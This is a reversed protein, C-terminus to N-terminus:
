LYLQKLQRSYLRIDHYAKWWTTQHLKDLMEDYQPLKQKVIEDLKSLDDFSVLLHQEVFEIMEDNFNFGAKYNCTDLILPICDNTIAEFFRRLSFCNTDYSPINLTFKAHQIHRMYEDYPILSTNYKFDVNQRWSRYRFFFQQKEVFTPEAFHEMAKIINLRDKVNSWSDTMAFAFKLTKNHFNASALGKHQCFVYWYQQSPSFEFKFKVPEADLKMPHEYIDNAVKHFYFHRIRINDIYHLKHQLPDECFNYVPKQHEAFWEALLYTIIYELANNVNKLHLTMVDDPQQKCTEYMHWFAEECEITANTNGNFLSLTAPNTTDLQSWILQKAQNFTLDGSMIDAVCFRTAHLKSIAEQKMNARQYSDVYMFDVKDHLLELMAISRWQLSNFFNFNGSQWVVHTPKDFQQTTM